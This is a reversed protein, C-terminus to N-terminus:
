LSPYTVVNAVRRLDRVVRCCMLASCTVHNRFIAHGFLLQSGIISLVEIDSVPGLLL